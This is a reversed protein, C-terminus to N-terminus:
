KRSDVKVNKGFAILEFETKKEDLSLNSNNRTIKLSYKIKLCQRVSNGM